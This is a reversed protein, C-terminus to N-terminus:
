IVGVVILGIVVVAMIAIAVDSVPADWWRKPEEPEVECAWPTSCKRRGQECPGHCEKVM